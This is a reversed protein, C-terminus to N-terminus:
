TIPLHFFGVEIVRSILIREFLFCNIKVRGGWSSCDKFVQTAVGFEKVPFVTQDETYVVSIRVCVGVSSIVRVAKPSSTRIKISLHETIM